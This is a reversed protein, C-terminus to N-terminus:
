WYHVVLALLILILPLMFLTRRLWPNPPSYADTDAVEAALPVSYEVGRGLFPDRRSTPTETRNVMSNIQKIQALLTGAEKISPDIELVNQLLRNANNQLIEEKGWLPDHMLSQVQQLAQDIDSQIRTQLRRADPNSPDIKLIATLLAMCDKRRKDEYAKKALPILGNLEARLAAQKSQGAPNRSTDSKMRSRLTHWSPPSSIRGIGM